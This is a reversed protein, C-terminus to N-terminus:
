SDEPSRAAHHRVSTLTVFEVDYSKLRAKRCGPHFRIAPSRTLRMRGCGLCPMRKPFGKYKRKFAATVPAMLEVM